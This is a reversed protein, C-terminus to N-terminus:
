KDLILTIKVETGKDLQSNISLGSGKKYFLRIRSNVNGLGISNETSELSDQELKDKIIKLKDEAIGCGNDSIKIFLIRNDDKIEDNIDINIIGGNERDELGHNFSNEVLPQILLPLIEYDSLNVNVNINYKIRDTFRMHQISLYNNVAELEKELPVPSGKVSLNYRLLKALIQLMKAVDKDGSSFAKMRITEISNFFFHPNIQSSLMKFSIQSQKAKIQEKEINQKYVQDILERLNESMQYLNSYISQFEDNGGISKEIEFNNEVVKEIGSKVKQVRNHVYRNHIFFVTFALLVMMLLLFITITINKVTQIQLLKIPILYVIKFKICMSNNPLFDRAFIGRTEKGLHIKSYVENFKQNKLLLPINKIEEQSLGQASSYLFDDDFYVLTEYLQQSLQQQIVEPSMNIVLVGIYQRYSPTWLSRVLSLYTKKTIQDYTFQWFAHGKMIVATKCWPEEYTDQSTKIIFSNDLLSENKVYIRFNAISRYIKLYDELFNLESYASYIDQINEYEPTLLNQVKKNIYVRDSFELAETLASNFEATTKELSSNVKDMEFKQMSNYLYMTYLTCIIIVPVLFIDFFLIALSESMPKKNLKATLWALFTNM